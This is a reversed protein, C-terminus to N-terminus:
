DTKRNPLFHRIIGDKEIFIIEKLKDIPNAQLHNRVERYSFKTDSLNVVLRHAQNSAVKDEIGEYVGSLKNSIPAYNDFVRGEILFDPNKKHSLGLRKKMTQTLVGTDVPQQHIRYGANALQEASENERRIGRKNLAQANVRNTARLGEPQGGHLGRPQTKSVSIDDPIVKHPKLRIKINAFNSGLTNPTTKVEVRRAVNWSIKAAKSGGRLGLSAAKGVGAIQILEGTAKFNRTAEPHDKALQKAEKILAQTADIGKHAASLLTQKVKPNQELYADVSKLTKGTMEALAHRGTQYAHTKTLNDIASNAWAKTQDNSIASGVVDMVFDVGNGAQQYLTSKISQEKWFSNTKHFDTKLERWDAKMSEWTDALYGEAKGNTATTNTAAVTNGATQKQPAKVRESQANALSMFPAKLGERAHVPLFSTSQKLFTNATKSATNPKSDLSLPRPAISITNGILPNAM